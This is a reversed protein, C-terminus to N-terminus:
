EKSASRVGHADIVFRCSEADDCSYTLKVWGCGRTSQLSTGDKTVEVVIEFDAVKARASAIQWAGFGAIVIALIWIMKSKM